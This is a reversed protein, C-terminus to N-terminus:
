LVQTGKMKSVTGKELLLGKSDQKQCGDEVKDHPHHGRADLNISWMQLLQRFVNRDAQEKMDTDSIISM